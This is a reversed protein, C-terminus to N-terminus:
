WYHIKPCVFNLMGLEEDEDDVAVDEGSRESEDALELISESDVSLINGVHTPEDDEVDEVSVHQSAVLTTRKSIAPTTRKSTAPTTHLVKQKASPRPKTRDNKKSTSTAM